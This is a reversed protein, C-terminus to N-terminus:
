GRMRGALREVYGGLWADSPYEVAEGTMTARAWAIGNLRWHRGAFSIWGNGQGDTTFTVEKGADTTAVVMGAARRHWTVLPWSEANIHLLGTRHGPDGHLHIRIM